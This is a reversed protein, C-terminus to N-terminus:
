GQSFGPCEQLMPFIDLWGLQIWQCRLLSSLKCHKFLYVRCEHSQKSASVSGSHRQFLTPFFGEIYEVKGNEKHFVSHEETSTHELVWQLVLFLLDWFFSFQYADCRHPNFKLKRGVIRYRSGIQITVINTLSTLGMDRFSSWMVAQAKNTYAWKM